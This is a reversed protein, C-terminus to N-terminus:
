DYVALGERLDSGVALTNCNPSRVVWTSGGEGNIRIM